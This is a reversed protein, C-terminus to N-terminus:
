RAVVGSLRVTWAAGTTAGKRMAADPGVVAWAGPLVTFRATFRVRFLPKVPGTTSVTLPPVAVATVRALPCVVAVMGTRSGVVTEPAFKARVTVAVPPVGVDVEVAGTEIGTALVKVKAKLEGVAVAFAPVASERGKVTFDEVVKGVDILKWILPRGLEVERLREPLVAVPWNVSVTFVNVEQGVM